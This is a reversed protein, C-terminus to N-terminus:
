AHSSHWTFLDWSITGRLMMHYLHYPPLHYTHLHHTPSPTAAHHYRRTTTTLHYRRTTTSHYPPVTTSHYLPVTTCHYLPVTTCHYPVCLYMYPHWIKDALSDLFLYNLLTDLVLRRWPHFQVTTIPLTPVLRCWADAVSIASSTQVMRCWPDLCYSIIYAVRSAYSQICGIPPHGTM